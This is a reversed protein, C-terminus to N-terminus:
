QPPNGTQRQGWLEAPARLGPAGARGCSLTQTSSVRGVMTRVVMVRTEPGSSCGGEPAKRDTWVDPWGCRAASEDSNAWRSGLGKGDRGHWSGRRSFYERVHLAQEKGRSGPQGAQGEGKNGEVVRCVEVAGTRPWVEYRDDGAVTWQGAKSNYFIRKQSLRMDQQIQKNLLHILPRGHASM